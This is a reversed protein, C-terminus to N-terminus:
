QSGGSSIATAEPLLRRAGAWQRRYTSESLDSVVVGEARSAHVFKGRGVYIGVHDPTPDGADTRFFVLDGIRLGNQEVARGLTFLQDVSHPLDLGFVSGYVAVVLGSCDVGAPSAGGWAYPSGLFRRLELALPIAWGPLQATSSSTRLAPIEGSRHHVFKPEARFTACGALLPAACLVAIRISWLRM